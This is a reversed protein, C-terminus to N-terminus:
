ALEAVTVPEGTREAAPLPDTASRGSAWWVLGALLLLGVIETSLAPLPGGLPLWSGHFPQMLASPGIQFRTMVTALAYLHVPVAVILALRVLRTGAAPGLAAHWRRVFCAALVVGVGDALVYRSQATWGQTHIFALELVVLIGLCVATLGVVAVRFRRGALLAAPVVVAATVVYWATSLWIPISTEGYSFDGIIQQLYFPMRVVAIQRLTSFLGYSYAREPISTINTVGSTLIWALSLLGAGVVIGAAWRLDRRRALERLRGRRALLLITLLVVALLVSGMHRITLLVAAAIAAVVVLAHTPLAEQVASVRSGAQEAPVASGVPRVLALLACWLLIGASIELGNPNIAGALNMVMPTAVLVLGGVLLRNGLRVAIVFAGALALASLLASVLRGAVIGRYDPSVLMPLGVPLYYLPSYGAANTTTTIRRHDAPAPQQCSAPLKRLWQCKVDGPLLSAPAQETGSKAYVQGSAVGYARVIHEREDYTGNVPLALAWGAGVGFFAVVAILFVSLRRRNRAPRPSRVATITEPTAGAITEQM